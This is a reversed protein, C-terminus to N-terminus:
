KLYYICESILLGSVISKIELQSTSFEIKKFQCQRLKKNILFYKRIKSKRIKSIISKATAYNIELLTSASKISYSKQFVLHQLQEKQLQHVKQYQRIKEKKIINEQM